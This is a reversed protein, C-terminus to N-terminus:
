ADKSKHDCTYQAINQNDLCSIVINHARVYYTIMEILNKAWVQIQEYFDFHEARFVGVLLEFCIDHRRLYGNWNDFNIYHQYHNPPMM